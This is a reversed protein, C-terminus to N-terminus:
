SAKRMRLPCVFIVVVAASESMWLSLLVERRRCVASAVTLLPDVQQPEGPATPNAHLRKAGNPPGPSGNGSHGEPRGSPSKHSM